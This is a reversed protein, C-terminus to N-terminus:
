LPGQAAASARSLAAACPGKSAPGAGVFMAVGNLAADKCGREDTSTGDCSACLGACDACAGPCDAAGAATVLVIQPFGTPGGAANGGVLMPGTMHTSSSQKGVCPLVDVTSLSVYM